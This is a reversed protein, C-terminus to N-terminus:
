KGACFESNPDIVGKGYDSQSECYAHSFIDIRVSQLTNALSGGSSTTGWGAVFCNSGKLRQGDYTPLVHDGHNPLCAIDATNGDLGINDTELLCYDYNYGM